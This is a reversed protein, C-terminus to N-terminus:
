DPKMASDQVLKGWKAIDSLWFNHFELNHRSDPILGLDELKKSVSPLRVISSIENGLRQVILPDTGSPAFIAHWTVM